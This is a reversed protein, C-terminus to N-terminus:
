VAQGWLPLREPGFFGRVRLLGTRWSAESPKCLYFSLQEQQHELICRGQFGDTFLTSKPQLAALTQKVSVSSILLLSRRLVFIHFDAKRTQSLPEPCPLSLNSIRHWFTPELIWAICAAISPWCIKFILDVEARSEVVQGEKVARLAAGSHQDFEAWQMMEAPTSISFPAERLETSHKFGNLHSYSRLKFLLTNQM